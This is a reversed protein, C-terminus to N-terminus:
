KDDKSGFTDMSYLLLLIIWGMALPVLPNMDKRFHVYYRSQPEFETVAIDCDLVNTM